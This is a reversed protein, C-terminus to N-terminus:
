GRRRAESGSGSRRCEAPVRRSRDRLPASANAAHATGAMRALSRFTKSTGVVHDVKGARTVRGLDHAFAARVHKRLAKVAEPGPPDKPLFERTLRGAGLPVSFAADPEEDRGSAVELSGGGIDLVLLRTASWGYWRRVALFTLRAEGPGTLVELQVGTEERVRALVKASNTADRVASTAFALMDDVDHAAAAQRASAVAKVLEDAAATDMRGDPGIREALRLVSKESYAPWPHAGRHAEVVLVM